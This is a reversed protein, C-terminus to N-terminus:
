PREVFIRQGDRRLTITGGDFILVSGLIDHAM